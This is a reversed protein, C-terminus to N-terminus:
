LMIESALEDFDEDKMEGRAKEHEALTAPDWVEIKNLTGIIIVDKNIRALSILNQPITIRGQGDYKSPTAYRTMRRIFDRNKRKMVPLRKLKEEILLWEDLPYLFLCRDLGQTIVFTRDAERSLMKRFRSPINIRGKHDVTYQYEGTFSTLKNQM